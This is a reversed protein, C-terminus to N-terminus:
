LEEDDLVIAGPRFRQPTTSRGLRRPTAGPKNTKSHTDAETAHQHPLVKVLSRGAATEIQEECHRYRKSRRLTERLARPVKRSVEITGSGVIAEIKADGLQETDLAPGGVM